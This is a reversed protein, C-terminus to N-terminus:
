MLSTRAKRHPFVSSFCSFRNSSSSAGGLYGSSSSCSPEGYFSARLKFLTPIPLFGAPGASLLSSYFCSLSSSSFLLDTCLAVVAIVFGFGTFTIESKKELSESNMRFIRWPVYMSANDDM